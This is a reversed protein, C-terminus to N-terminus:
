TTYKIYLGRFQELFVFTLITHPGIRFYHAVFGKYFGYLGETRLTKVFCDFTNKYLSGKGSQDVKQNYMRTTIVDFPNMAICVCFGSVLSSLVHVLINDDGMGSYHIVSRKIFFYSSLQTCSGVGTRIMAADAGRFLGKFYKEEKSIKWLADFSNKYKHQHGIATFTSYSQMRTKVLFLPSGIGAGFAGALFGSLVSIPMSTSSTNFFKELSNRIPDYLGLRAGNMVLQYAYAPGLGKQIGRVGENKVIIYFAQFINRYPKVYNSNSRALEGQLQLRTKVVEWPNTFTVAACAAAGGILFGPLAKITEKAKARNVKTQNVTSVGSVKQSNM